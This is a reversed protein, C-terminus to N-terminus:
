ETTQEDVEEQYTYNVTIDYSLGCLEEFGEKNLHCEILTNGNPAQISLCVLNYDETEEIGLWGDQAKLRFGRLKAM